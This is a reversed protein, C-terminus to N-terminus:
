SKCDIVPMVADKGTRKVHFMANDALALLDGLETSDDPYTALGFSAQIAVQHGYKSLYKTQNMKSRIEEAKGTATKKGFGPLVIVFEDGGYAVGFAPDLLCAKITAAVEHLAESGKLHGYADVVRKFNDLDMFIVSFVTKGAQSGSILERLARYLHRQNFLGTLDDHIALDNIHRYQLMNEVAIAAYDAIISLLSLSNNGVSKPNVVEMVGLTKGGFVLPVCILSETKCGSLEDVRSSFFECGEVDRIVVPVQTLAVQGAIGEGLRLRIDKVVHPVLDVSLEFRLEGATEDLLLLSWNEAPLLESVKKLIKGFLRKSDLEATLAKGLEVCSLLEQQTLSRLGEMFHTETGDKM